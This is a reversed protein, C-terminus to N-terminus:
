GNYRKKKASKSIDETEMGQQFKMRQFHQLQEVWQVLWGEGKMATALDGKAKAADIIEQVARLHKNCYEVGKVPNDIEEDVVQM